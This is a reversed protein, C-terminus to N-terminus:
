AVGVADREDLGKALRYEHKAAAAVCDAVDRAAPHARITETRGQIKSVLKSTWVYSVAVARLASISSSTHLVKTKGRDDTNECIGGNELQWVIVVKLIVAGVEPQM